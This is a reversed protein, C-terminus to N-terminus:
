LVQFYKSNTDDIKIGAADQEEVRDVNATDPGKHLWTHLEEIKTNNGIALVEVDGNNLNKAYGTLGLDLARIRTSYRFGVCQVHGTVLFIRHSRDM